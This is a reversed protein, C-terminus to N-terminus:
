FSAYASLVNDTDYEAVKIPVGQPDPIIYSMDCGTHKLNIPTSNGIVLFYGGIEAETMATGDERILACRWTATVQKLSPESSSAVSLQASSQVSSVSSISASSSAKSSSSKLKSGRYYGSSIFPVDCQCKIAAARANEHLTSSKLEAVTGVGPATYRNKEYEPNLTQALSFSSLLAFFLILYKM